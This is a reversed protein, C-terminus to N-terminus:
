KAEGSVEASYASENGSKDFSTVSLYYTTGLTLGTVTLQTATGAGVGAGKAQQYHRSTTGYYVKYGALDADTNASWGITLSGSPPPNTGGGGSGGSSGGGGGGGCSALAAGLVILAASRALSRTRPRM